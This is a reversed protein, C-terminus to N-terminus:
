RKGAPADESPLFRQYALSAMIAIVAVAFLAGIRHLAGLRELDQFFLKLVAVGLLALASYRGARTHKWISILLLGLAFLAWAITYTMDRAFNGSFQFILVRAGPTSFFDAIEINLLLFALVTGLSNLLPPVRIRLARDHPPALLAAGVFLGAIVIGYTYFYWNFFPVAARAHYEFVAPNLALRVFALVLLVVGTARLGPHPIRRVLWLLATGELAWGLTIWQREFQIPVILTIFLLAVGGWWALQNLRARDDVAPTRRIAFLSVLPAIAFLAPVLGMFANPSTREVVRYVLPFQVAGALAAIAWPGTTAAFRSRFVFPFVTFIAYFVLYWTFPPAAFSRTFHRADWAYELAAVGALACSPLWYVGLGRTLGLCLLVLLLALGFVGSPNAMPLRQTMMVLLLFPLLASFAPLQTRPDGASGSRPSDADGNRRALLIGGGFFLAAFGGVVLLLLPESTLAPPIQFMWLGTAALTLGLAAAMALLSQSFVALGIALLDILLVCPWLAFSVTDLKLVPILMLILALPPFLQSWWTLGAGPRRRELLLPFTTHTAAHMLYLGLAWPLLDDTLRAGTWTALLAFVAFGGILHAHSSDEDFWAVALLCADVMFIFGFLRAPQAAITPYGIFGLAFLFAICPLAIAPWLLQAPTRRPLAPTEGALKESAPRLGARGLTVRQAVLYGLLFVACFVLCVLMATPAKAPNLFKSAWGLQMAVTGAAGLPVLFFWRQHLALAVLGIDLLAIYGFLGFPNDRGTSLLVPTFFGGLMGLVAVVQAALRVALVFAGATILVMLLFTPIPGFFAFHYISNCAFTVAYLCVIGTACLTQATTAYRPRPIKLGGIVLSLAFLYGLAVRVAPPILDHEFSYKIFFAAGLFAAFGGTWALLKAGTFQEWNRRPRAIVPPPVAAQPSAHTPGSVQAVAIPPTVPRSPSSSLPAAIIPPGAVPPPSTATIERAKAGAAPPAARLPERRHIIERELGSLRRELRENNKELALIKFLAWLPFAVLVLALLVILLPVMSTFPDDPNSQRSSFALGTGHEM